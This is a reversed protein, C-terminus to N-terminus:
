LNTESVGYVFGSALAKQLPCLAGLQVPTQKSLARKYLREHCCSLMLM